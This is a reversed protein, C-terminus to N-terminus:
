LRFCMCTSHWISLHVRHTYHYISVAVQGGEELLYKQVDKLAKIACKSYYHYYNICTLHIDCSRDHSECEQTKLM